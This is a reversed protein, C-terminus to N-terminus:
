ESIYKDRAYYIPLMGGDVSLRCLGISGVQV